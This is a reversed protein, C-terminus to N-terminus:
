KKKKKKSKKKKAERVLGQIVVLDQKERLDIGPPPEMHLFTRFFDDSEKSM